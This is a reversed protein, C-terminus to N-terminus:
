KWSIQGNKVVFSFLRSSDVERKNLSGAKWTGLSNFVEEVQRDLEESKTKIDMKCRVVKGKCNIVLGLMGKDEFNPNDKLFQIETNLKALIEDKTVPSVAEVQGKLPLLAYVENPDCLGPIPEKVEMRAVIQASSTTGLIMAAFLAITLKM